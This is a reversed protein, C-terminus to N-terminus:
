AAEPFDPGGTPHNNPCATSGWNTGPQRCNGCVHDPTAVHGADPIPVAVPLLHRIEYPDRKM